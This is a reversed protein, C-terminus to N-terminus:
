YNQCGERREISTTTHGGSSLGPTLALWGPLPCRYPVSEEPVRMLEGDSTTIPKQEVLLKLLGDLFYVDSVFSFSAKRGDDTTLMIHSRSFPFSAKQGDDATLM